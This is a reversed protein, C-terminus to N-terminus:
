RSIGLINCVYRITRRFSSQPKTLWDISWEYSQVWSEEQTWVGRLRPWCQVRIALARENPNGLGAYPSQPLSQGYPYNKQLFRTAYEWCAQAMREQTRHVTDNSNSRAGVVAPPPDPRLRMVPHVSEYLFFGALVLLVLVWMRWERKPPTPPNVGYMDMIPSSRKDM